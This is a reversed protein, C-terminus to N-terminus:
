FPIDEDSGSQTEPEQETKTSEKTTPQKTKADVPKSPTGTLWWDIPKIDVYVRGNYERSDLRGIIYISYGQSIKGTHDGFLSIPIDSTIVQKDKGTRETRITINTFTYSGRVASVPKTVIPGILEFRNLGNM